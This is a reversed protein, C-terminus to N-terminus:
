GIEIIRKQGTIADGKQPPSKGVPTMKERESARPQNGRIL